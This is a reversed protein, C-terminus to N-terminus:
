VTAHSFLMLLQSLSLRVVVLMVGGGAAAWWWCCGVVLLAGDGAACWWRVVVVLLAGGGGFAFCGWCRVVVLLVFGDCFCWWWCRVEM